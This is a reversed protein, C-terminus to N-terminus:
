YRPMGTHIDRKRWSSNAERVGPFPNPAFGVFGYAPRTTPLEGKKLSIAVTSSKKRDKGFCQEYILTICALGVGITIVIFVGGINKISIGESSKKSDGCQKKEPNNNWWKDKLSELKRQNLLKLIASSLKDKLPSGEQVALALPKRSFEDGVQELDCHIMAAYQVKTADELLTFGEQANKSARVRKVGEEFSKPMGTIEIQKWIDNYKQAMPYDWVTLKSREWASYKTNLTIDQWINFFLREIYAMRKFYVMSLSNEVPSYRIRYQEVLKDLSDIPSDLRSVTLFAALNATYSAIVIFGFIWWIAAVIKSSLNIPAEGGGQPTLSTMCFWLCEKFTFKRKDKTISPDMNLSSYPSIRDFLFMFFSTILYAILISLWVSNTLVTLFKFMHSSTATKKMLLSVGVLDYYPVTFDVVGEREAMVFVGSIAIEAKKDQIQGMMGDWKGTKPDKEGYKGNPSEYLEYDFKDEPALEAQILELLDICYGYWTGNSSRMVFPPQKLTVIHLLPKQDAMFAGTFMFRGSPPEAVWEGLLRHHNQHFKWLQIKSAKLVIEQYDYESVLDHEHRTDHEHDHILFQGYLGHFGEMAMEHRLGIKERQKSQERSAKQGCVPYDLKEVWKSQYKLDRITEGIFRILDYYFYGDVRYISSTNTLITRHDYEVSKSRMPQYLMISGHTCNECKVEGRGKTIMHWSDHYNFMGLHAAAELIRNINKIKGLVFYNNLGLSKINALTEELNDFNEMSQVLFQNGSAKDIIQEIKYEIVFSDDYLLAGTTMNYHNILNKVIYPIVDGPQHVHILYKQEIQNLNKWEDHQNDGLHYSTSITPVASRRTYRKILSSLRSGSAPPMLTADIVLDPHLNPTLILSCIEEESADETLETLRVHFSINKSRLNEFASSIFRRAIANKTSLIVDINVPNVSSSHCLINSFILLFIECYFILSYRFRHSM